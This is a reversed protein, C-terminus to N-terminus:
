LMDINGMSIIIFDNEVVLREGDTWKGEAIDKLCDAGMIFFLKDDPYAGNM